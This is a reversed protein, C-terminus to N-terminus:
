AHPEGLSPSSPINVLRMALRETVTLDMRPCTNYMPLKHLPMWVPRAMIGEDNLRQLLALRCEVDDVDLILTNLWYNSVGYEPECFLNVGRVSQFAEQYRAALARKNRIFRPLQELQACGLAANLNPMRYNYGVFDHYFEWPHAQKATTTIHRAREALGSDPTLIAGGGGTTVTKNGNFSLASCYGRYGTHKGKYYSGLSEAADEVMIIGFRLCVEALADLDVPHGFTHMPVVAKITRGSIHNFCSGYRIECIEALYDALGSPDIGLTRDDVDVFHPVAGCYTVANATAVFSLSPVLVEDNLGVGSLHLCVHLAATGNVVAVVGEIGTYERIMSEFRDVYTGASSVWGSDLCDKVYDWENGAFCPEHLAVRKDATGTAARIARIIGAIDIPSETSM